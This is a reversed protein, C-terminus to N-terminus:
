PSTTGAATDGLLPESADPAEEGPARRCGVFLVLGGAVLCLGNAVCATVVLPAFVGQYRVLLVLLSALSSCALLIAGGNSFPSIGRRAFLRISVVLLMLVIIGACVIVMVASPERPIPGHRAIGTSSVLMMISATPLLMKALEFIPDSRRIPPDHVERWRRRSM